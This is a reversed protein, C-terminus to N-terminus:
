ASGIIFSLHTFQRLSALSSLSCTQQEHSRTTTRISHQSETTSQDLLDARELSFRCCAQKRRKVVRVKMSCDVALSVYATFLRLYSCVCYSYM